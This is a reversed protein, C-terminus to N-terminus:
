FPVGEAKRLPAADDDDDNDHSGDTGSFFNDDSVWDKGEDAMWSALEAYREDGIYVDRWPLGEREVVSYVYRSIVYKTGAKIEIPKGTGDSYTGLTVKFAIQPWVKRGIEVSAETAWGVLRHVVSPWESYRHKKGIYTNNFPLTKTVGKMGWVVRIPDGDGDPYIDMLVQVHSRNNSYGDPIPQNTRFYHEQGAGDKCIWRSRWVLINATIQNAAWADKTGEGVRVRRAAWGEPCDPLDSQEIWFFGPEDPNADNIVGSWALRPMPPRKTAFLDGMEDLLGLGPMIVQDPM